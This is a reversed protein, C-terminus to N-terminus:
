LLKTKIYELYLRVIDINTESYVMRTGVVDEIENLIIEDNNEIFDVGVLDFQLEKYLKNIIIIWENKINDLLFARGSLSYNSRFDNEARREIACIIKGGLVYVRTDVGTNSAVKQTIIRKNKLSKPLKEIDQANEIMFVEKGGHGSASKLIYPYTLKNTDFTYTEMVPINLKESLLYTEYKDNCISATKYNNFTRVNRKELYETLNPNITRVIAYDPLDVPLDDNSEFILLRIDMELEKSIEIIHEAFWKNREFGDKDYILLGRM